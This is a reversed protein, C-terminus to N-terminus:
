VISGCLGLPFIYLLYVEASLLVSLEVPLLVVDRYPPIWNEDVDRNKDCM